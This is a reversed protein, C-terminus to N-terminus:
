MACSQTSTMGWPAICNQRTESEWLRIRPGPWVRVVRMVCYMGWGGKLALIYRLVISMVVLMTDPGLGVARCAVSLGDVNGSGYTRGPGWCSSVVKVTLADGM